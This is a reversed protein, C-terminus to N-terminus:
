YKSPLRSKCVTSDKKTRGETDLWQEAVTSFLLRNGMQGKRQRKQYAMAALDRKVTCEEETEGSVYGYCLRGDARRGRVFRGEWKGTSRRFYINSGTRAM